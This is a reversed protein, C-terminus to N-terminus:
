LGEPQHRIAQFMVKLEGLNLIRTAFLFLIYALASCVFLFLNTILDGKFILFPVFIFGLAIVKFGERLCPFIKEKFFVCMAGGLVVCSISTAISCGMSAYGPILLISAVIFAAFAFCLAVFNKRPEKYVVSFVLGLKAFIMPFIGLLLVVGNPFIATYEPGIVMSILDRGTLVFGWFTITCLIGTYKIILTSWDILKKEKGTVLLETFIPVLNTIAVLIFAVTYLFIMNPLDFLAIERSDETIHEILPNGLRQCVTAVVSSMYLIFGFGLYPKLYPLDIKFNEINFYKRTWFFYLAALFGEVFVISMMAGLLGYYHFMVLMFVLSLARRMPERLAYKGLKNLGFLLAHPVIGCDTVILIAVILLFFTSPFRDSYAFHLILLLVVSIILDVAIKLSLINSSLRRISALEGQRESEPIFRGFINADGGFEVLSNTIAILSILLAYDGYIEPGMLRPIIMLNLALFPYQAAKLLLVMTLNKTTASAEKTIVSAEKLQRDSQLM